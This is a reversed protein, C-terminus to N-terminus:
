TCPRLQTSKPRGWRYEYQAMGIFGIKKAVSYYELGVLATARAFQACEEPTAFTKIRIAPIRNDLLADLNEKSLEAERRNTWISAGM